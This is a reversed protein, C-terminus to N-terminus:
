DPAAPEHAFEVQVYDVAEVPHGDRRAPRYRWHRVAAEAARDLREDGSSRVVLADEVRGRRGVFLKLRVRGTVGEAAADEPYRAEPRAIPELPASEPARTEERQHAPVPPKRPQIPAAAPSPKVAARVPVVAAPAPLPTPHHAPPPVAALRVPTPVRPRPRPPPRHREVIEVRALPPTKATRGSHRAKGGSAAHKARGHGTSASSRGSQQAVASPRRVQVWAAALAVLTVYLAVGLAILTWRRHAPTWGGAARTGPARRPKPERALSM